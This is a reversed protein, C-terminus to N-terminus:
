HTAREIRAQEETTREAWPVLELRDDPIRLGSDVSLGYTGLAVRQEARDIAALEERLSEALGAELEDDALHEDDGDPRIRELEREIRDRHQALLRHAHADDM